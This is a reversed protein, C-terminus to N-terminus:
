GHWSPTNLTQPYNMEARITKIPLNKNSEVTCKKHFTSTLNQQRSLEAENLTSRTLTTPRAEQTGAPREGLVLAARRVCDSDEEGTRINERCDTGSLANSSLTSGSAATGALCSGSATGGAASNFMLTLVSGSRMGVEKLMTSM